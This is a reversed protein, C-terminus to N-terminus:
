TSLDEANVILDIVPVCQYRVPPTPPYARGSPMNSTRM